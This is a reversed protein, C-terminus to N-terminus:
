RFELVVGAIWFIAVVALYMAFNLLYTVAMYNSWRMGMSAQMERLKTEKELVMVFVYLPLQLTLALPYLFSGLLEAIFTPDEYPAEPMTGIWQITDDPRDRGIAIGEFGRTVLDMVAVYAPMITLSRHQVWNPLGKAPFRTLGNPRHYEVIGVDNVQVTYDLKAKGKKGLQHPAVVDHFNLVGDPLEGAPCNGYYCELLDHFPVANLNNLVEYLHADSSKADPVRVFYPVPSTYKETHYYCYPRGNDLEGLLGSGGYADKELSGVAKAVEDNDATFYFYVLCDWDDWFAGVQSESDGAPATPATHYHQSWLAPDPHFLGQRFARDYNMHSTNTMISAMPLVFPLMLNTFFDQPMSPGYTADDGGAVDDSYGHAQKMGAAFDAAGQNNEFLSELYYPNSPVIFAPIHHTEGGGVETKIISKFIVLLIIVILPTM